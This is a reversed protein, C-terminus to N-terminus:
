FTNLWNLIEDKRSLNKDGEKLRQLRKIAIGRKKFIKKWAEATFRSKHSTTLVVTDNDSVLQQLVNVAKHSFAAFGDELIQPTKWGAAPVMVGDIDLLILM